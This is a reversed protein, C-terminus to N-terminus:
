EYWRGSKMDRGSGCGLDLINASEPLEKLFRTRIDEMDVNATNDAFSEANKEYYLLTETTKRM